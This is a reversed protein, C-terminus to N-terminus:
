LLNHYMKNMKFYKTKTKSKQFKKNVMIKDKNFTKKLNSFQSFKSNNLKQRKKIKNNNNFKM